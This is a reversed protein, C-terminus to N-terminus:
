DEARIQVAGAFSVSTTGLDLVARIPVWDCDSRSHAKMGDLGLYGHSPGLLTEGSPAEARLGVTGGPRDRRKDGKCSGPFHLSIEM